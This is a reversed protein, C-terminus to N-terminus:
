HRRPNRLIKVKREYWQGTWGRTALIGWTFLALGIGACIMFFGLIAM